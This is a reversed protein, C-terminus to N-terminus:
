RRWLWRVPVYSLIIIHNSTKKCKGFFHIYTYLSRSNKCRTVVKAPKHPDTMALRLFFTIEHRFLLSSLLKRSIDGLFKGSICLTNTKRLIVYHNENKEFPNFSSNTLKSPFLALLFHLLSFSFLACLFSEVDHTGKQSFIFYQLSCNEASDDHYLKLGNEAYFSQRFIKVPFHLHDKKQKFSIWAWRTGM